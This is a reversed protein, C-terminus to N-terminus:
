VSNLNIGKKKFSLWMILLERGIMKPIVILVCILLPSINKKGQYTAIKFYKKYSTKNRDLVGNM